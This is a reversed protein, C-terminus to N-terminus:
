DDLEKGFDILRLKSADKPHFQAVKSRVLFRAAATEKPLAVYAASSDGGSGMLTNLLEEILDRLEHGAATTEDPVENASREAFAPGWVEELRRQRRDDDQKAPAKKPRGRANFGAAIEEADVGLRDGVIPGGLDEAALQAALHEEIFDKLQRFLGATERDYRKKRQELETLRNRATQEPGLEMGNDLDEQLSKIRDELAPTLLQQDALSATEEDLRRKAKDISIQQSALYARSETITQHTRRLALLAPLVSHPSPMFPAEQSVSDFAARMVEFPARKSSSLAPHVDQANRSLDALEKEYERIKAQLEDLSQEVRLAHRADTAANSSHDM